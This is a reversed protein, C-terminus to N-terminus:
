SEATYLENEPHVRKPRYFFLGYSCIILLIFGVVTGVNFSGGEFIWHGLQYIIMSMVYALGCQYAVATMTWKIDNFERRMAGISAFCPACLLNFVLFSYGAVPTFAQRMMPWIQRGSESLGSSRSFLVGFTGVVNEKAVLGTIAAVAARWNGWGLPAFIIAIFGGIAALMSQSEPVMQFKYNFNSLLWIAICSVFIITGAKKIFSRSREWVQRSVNVFQPMHYTPLEMIFPAPDGAFLRTKKLFIGSAVIAFIGVFYASPAVWSSQPFFAGAVLAIITLKASCPMFTTVMITMHRDKENEITRSAMIGPVGCGTAVLMPIFSKGSLGFKRFMRDMVFAIRAMYGCDELIGLCIFLVILQPLFGIVSGVGGIIGDVILSQMWTAVHWSALLPSVTNPIWQGFLVDNVWDTGITGVTQISLYYVFWMVFAFIPLALYRNTVIRDIKDSTSLSFDNKKVVALSVVRSVFAYREDIMISESDDAFVQETTKIIDEIDAAQTEDLKVQDFIRVDREFLKIAFWRRRDYPVSAKIINEIEGIAAELRRDYRPYNDEDFSEDSIDVAKDVVENLGKGKLACIGVVPVGLGYALKELNFQKNQKAVMDMMNMALVVPIGTEMLQMSLYLNREINTADVIDIIATPHDDILYDRAVIEEPSYPALSYIGPLDQLIVDKNHKLKGAKKEVTVGPWNGVYQNAGTLANFATTKGCNPNGALALEVKSM